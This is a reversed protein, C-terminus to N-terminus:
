TGCADPKRRPRVERHPARRDHADCRSQHQAQAELGRKPRWHRQGFRAHHPHDHRRGRHARHLLIQRDDVVDGIRVECTISETYENIGGFAGIHSHPDVIGPMVWYGDLDIVRINLPAELNDGIGVIRGRRILIDTDHLTGNTVTEVSANRLLVDGGTQIPPARDSELEHFWPYNDAPPEEEKEDDTENEEETNSEADDDTDKKSGADKKDPAVTYSFRQGDVFVMRVKSKEDEIPKTFLSVNALKGPAITGMQDTVGLISAPGATLVALADEPSLGLKVADRLKALIDAPGDLERGTVGVAIGAELLAAINLVQEEWQRVRERRVALPEYFADEWEPWWTRTTRLNATEEPTTDAKKEKPALEPKEDWDLQAIVPTNTASLRDTIRFAEAGGLIIVRQNFEEALDLAHHIEAARNALLLWTGNGDIM